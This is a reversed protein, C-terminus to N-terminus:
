WGELTYIIKVFHSLSPKKRQLWTLNFFFFFSLDSTRIKSYRDREGEAATDWLGVKATLPSTMVMVADECSEAGKDAAPRRRSMRRRGVTKVWFGKSDVVVAGDDTSGSNRGSHVLFSCGFTEM